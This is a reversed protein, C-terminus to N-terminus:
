NEYTMVVFTTHLDKVIKSELHHQLIYVDSKGITFYKTSSPPAYSQLAHLLHKRLFSQNIILPTKKNLDAKIQDVDAKQFYELFRYVSSKKIRRIGKYNAMHALRFAANEIFHDILQSIREFYQFLCSHKMPLGARECLRRRQTKPITPLQVDVKPEDIPKPTTAPTPTKTSM